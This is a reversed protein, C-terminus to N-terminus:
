HNHLTNSDEITAGEPYATHSKKTNPNEATAAHRCSPSCFPKFKPSFFVHGCHRCALTKSM